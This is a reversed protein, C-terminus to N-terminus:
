SGTLWQRGKQLGAPIPDDLLSTKPVGDPCEISVPDVEHQNVAHELRTASM